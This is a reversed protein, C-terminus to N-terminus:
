SVPASISKKVFASLSFQIVEPFLYFEIWLESQICSYVRLLGCVFFHLFQFWPYTRSNVQNLKSSHQWSDGEKYSKLGGFFSSTLFKLPPLTATATVRFTKITQSSLSRCFPVWYIRPERGGRSWMWSKKRDAPQQGVTTQPGERWVQCYNCLPLLKGVSGEM